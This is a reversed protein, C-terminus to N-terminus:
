NINKNYSRNNGTKNSKDQYLLMQSESFHKTTGPFSNLWITLKMFLLKESFNYREMTHRKRLYTNSEPDLIICRPGRNSFHTLKFGLMSICHCRLTYCSVVDMATSGNFNPFPYTIENRVNSPIKNSIWAPIFTWGHKYIPERNWTTWTEYSGYRIPLICQYEIVIDLKYRNINILKYIPM